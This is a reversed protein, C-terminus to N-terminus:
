HMSIPELITALKSLMKSRTDDDQFALLGDVMSWENLRVLLWIFKDSDLGHTTCDLEFPEFAGESNKIWECVDDYDFGKEKAHKSVKDIYMDLTTRDIPLIEPSTYNQYHTKMREVKNMFFVLLKKWALIRIRESYCSNSLIHQVLAILPNLERRIMIGSSMPNGFRSKSFSNIADVYSEYMGLIVVRECDEAEFFFKPSLIEPFFLSYSFDVVEKDGSGMLEKISSRVMEHLNLSGDLLKKEKEKWRNSLNNMPNHLRISNDFRSYPNVERYEKCLWDTEMEEIQFLFYARHITSFSTISKYIRNRFESSFERLYDLKLLWNACTSYGIADYLVQDPVCLNDELYQPNCDKSMILGDLDVYVQGLCNNEPMKKRM